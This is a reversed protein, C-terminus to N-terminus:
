ASAEGAERKKLQPYSRDAEIRERPANNGTNSKLGLISRYSQILSPERLASMRRLGLLIYAISSM